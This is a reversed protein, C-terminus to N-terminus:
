RDADGNSSPPFRAPNMSSNNCASKCVSGVWARSEAVVELEIAALRPLPKPTPTPKM